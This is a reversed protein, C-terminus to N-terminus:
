SMLRSLQLGLLVALVAPVPVRLLWIWVSLWRTSAVGRGAEELAGRMRWGVFLSLLLGGLPLGTESALSDLLALIETDLAAPIGCVVAVAAIGATAARRTWGLADIASAVIVELMSVSSTLAAVALAVFFVCGVVAGIAGMGNFASPLAVFLTGIASEGIEGQLGFGFLLPFVVLGALFAVFFDAGAIVVAENPLKDRQSLYSAYTMISGMGLSLSFFAQGAAANLTEFSWLASFDPQLYFAYGSADGLLAGYLALGILLAFLTPMLVKVVREIGHRIGGMVILATALMFGTQWLAAATGRSVAAFHAGADDPLGVVSEVAYRATWGAIM